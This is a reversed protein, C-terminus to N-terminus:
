ANAFITTCQPTTLQEGPPTGAAGMLNNLNPPHVGSNLLIHGIEHALARISGNNTIFATDLAASAAGTACFAPRSYPLGNNTTAVFYAKIRSSLGFDATAGSILTSEDTSLTACVGSGDLQTDGGLLQQTRTANESGGSGFSFHVCCQNFITNARELDNFANRTSGDLSVLDVSVTKIVPCGTTAGPTTGGPTPGTSFAQDLWGMTTPGVIGDVNAGLLGSAHQFDEVAAKTEPGFIGDVGHRPLSMGSDLLAQQLKRVAPGRNGVRLLRENDYVAELVPDGSFRPATLDHGDGITRHIQPAVPGATLRRTSSDRVDLGPRSHPDDGHPRSHQDTGDRRRGHKQQVAHTLEHALLRRGEGSHPRFEGARFVVDQHYTFARAGVRAALGDAGSGTHVKVQSLDAGFRPEFFGRVSGSLPRGAGLGVVDSKSMGRHSHGDGGDRHIVEDCECGGPCRSVVDDEVVSGLPAPGSMALVRRAVVDAERESRDSPLSVRLSGGM